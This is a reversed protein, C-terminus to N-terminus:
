AQENSSSFHQRVTQRGPQKAAVFADQRDNGECKLGAPSSVMAKARAVRIKGAMVDGMRERSRDWEVRRGGM